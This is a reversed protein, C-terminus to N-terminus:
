MSSVYRRRRLLLATAAVAAMSVSAPEPVAGTTLTVSWNDYDATTSFSFANTNNISAFGFTIPDGSDTFNPKETSSSNTGFNASTQSSSNITEWGGFPGHTVADYYYIGDQELAPGFEQGAASTCYCDEQYALSVIAGQKSPNYVAASSTSFGYVEYDSGNGVGLNVVQDNGPNGNTGQGGSASGPLSVPSSLTRNVIQQSSFSWVNPAFTGDQFTVTAASAAIPQLLWLLNAGGILGVGWVTFRKKQKPV